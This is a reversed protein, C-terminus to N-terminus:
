MYAYIPFDRQDTQLHIFETQKKTFLHAFSKQQCSSKGNSVAAYVIHIYM